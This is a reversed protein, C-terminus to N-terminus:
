WVGFVDGLLRQWNMSTKKWILDGWKYEYISNIIVYM